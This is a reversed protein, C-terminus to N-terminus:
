SRRHWGNLVGQKVAIHNTDHPSGLTATRIEDFHQILKIETYRMALPVERTLKQVVRYGNLLIMGSKGFSCGPVSLHHPMAVRPLLPRVAAILDPRVGALEQALLEVM